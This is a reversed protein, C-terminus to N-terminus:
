PLPQHTSVNIRQPPCRWRSDGDAMTELELNLTELEIGNAMAMAMQWRGDAM